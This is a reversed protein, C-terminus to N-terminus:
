EVADKGGMCPGAEAMGMCQATGPALYHWACLLARSVTAFLEEDHIVPGVDNRGPINAATFVGRVGPMCLAASTDVRLLEAHPKTSLVLAAPLAPLCKSVAAFLFHARQAQCACAEWAAVAQAAAPRENRLGLLRAAADHGTVAAPARMHM